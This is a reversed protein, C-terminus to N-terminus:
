PVTQSCCPTSCCRGGDRGRKGGAVDYIDDDPQKAQARAYALRPFLQQYDVDAIREGDLRIGDFREARPMSMWFGGALRGGDQWSQNNFIRRLSRRHLMILGGDSGIQLARGAETIEVNADRLWKNLRRIEGRLLNTRRSDKYEIPEPQDSADKGSKLILVEPEDLRRLSNVSFGRVPLFEAIRETPLVLSPAKAKDSYRYGTSVKRLVGLSAMVDISSLFHEGYVPNSYRGKGWMSAHARPVALAVDDDMLTLLMLNCALAEVSAFFRERAEDNRARQRLGESLEFDSLNNAFNKIAESLGSSRARYQPDFRLARFRKTM